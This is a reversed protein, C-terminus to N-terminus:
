IARAKILNSEEIAKVAEANNLGFRSKLYPIVPRPKALDPTTALWIAAHKVHSTDATM